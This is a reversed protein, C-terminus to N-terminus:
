IFFRDRPTEDDARESVLDVPGPAGDGPGGSRTHFLRKQLEWIRSEDEGCHLTGVNAEVSSMKQVLQLEECYSDVWLVFM